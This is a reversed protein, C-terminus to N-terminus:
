YRSTFGVGLRALGSEFDQNFLPGKDFYGGGLSVRFGWRGEFWYIYGLDGRLDVRTNGGAGNPRQDIFEQQGMRHNVWDTTSAEARFYISATPSLQLSARFTGFMSRGTIDGAQNGVFSWDTMRYGGSVDLMLRDEPTAFALRGGFEQVQGSRETRVGTLTTDPLGILASRDGYFGGLQLLPLVRAGAEARLNSSVFADELRSMENTVRDYELGAQARAYLRDILWAQAFAYLGTVEDTVDTVRGLRGGIELPQRVFRRLMPVVEDNRDLPAPYWTYALNLDSENRGHKAFTADVDFNVENNQPVLERAGAVGSGALAATAAVLSAALFHKATM